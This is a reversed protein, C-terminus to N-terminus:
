KNLRYDLKEICLDFSNIKKLYYILKESFIIKIEFCFTYSKFDEHNGTQSHTYCQYTVTPPSGTEEGSVPADTTETSVPTTTEENEADEAEEFHISAYKGSCDCKGQFIFCCM